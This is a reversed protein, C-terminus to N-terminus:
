RHPYHSGVERYSAEGGTEALKRLQRVEGPQRDFELQVLGVSLGTLDALEPLQGLNASLRAVSLHARTVRMALRTANRWLSLSRKLLHNRCM